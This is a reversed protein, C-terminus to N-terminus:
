SNQKKLWNALRKVAPASMLNTHKCIDMQAKVTDYDPEGPTDDYTKYEETPISAVLRAEEETGFYHPTGAFDVEWTHDDIKRYPFSTSIPSSM